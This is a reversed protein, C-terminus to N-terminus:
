VVIDFVLPWGLLVLLIAVRGLCGGRSLAFMRFAMTDLDHRSAVFVAVLKRSDFSVM